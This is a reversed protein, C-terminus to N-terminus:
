EGLEDSLDSRQPTTQPVIMCDRGCRGSLEFTLRRSVTFYLTVDMTSTAHRSQTDSGASACPLRNGRQAPGTISAYMNDKGNSNRADTQAARSTPAARHNRM